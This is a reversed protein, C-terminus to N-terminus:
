SEKDMDWNVPDDIKKKKKRVHVTKKHVRKRLASNEEM